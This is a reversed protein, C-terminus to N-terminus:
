FVKFMSQKIQLGVKGLTRNWESPCTSVQILSFLSVLFLHSVGGLSLPQNLIFQRHACSKTPNDYLLSELEGSSISTFTDLGGFSVSSLMTSSSLIIGILSFVFMHTYPLVLNNLLWLLEDHKSASAMSMLLRVVCKGDSGLTRPATYDSMPWTFLM